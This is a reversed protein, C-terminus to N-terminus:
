ADRAALKFTLEMTAVLEGDVTAVGKFRGISGRMWMLEVTSVLQDGPVVKRKFKVDDIAGILPVRSKNEDLSLLMCAGAQAMAELILVGPMVPMGPYHGQFFEENFTVNKLGVLRKGPDVELIRDVLLMPYRHPLHDLIEEISIM